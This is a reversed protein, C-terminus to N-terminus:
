GQPGNELKSLALSYAARYEEVTSFKDTLPKVTKALVNNVWVLALGHAIQENPIMM